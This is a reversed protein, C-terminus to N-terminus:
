KSVTAVECCRTLKIGIRFHDDCNGGFLARFQASKRQTKAEREPDPESGYEEVFREKNQISDARTEKQALEALRLGVRYASSRM